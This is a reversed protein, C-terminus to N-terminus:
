YAIVERVSKDQKCSLCKQTDAGRSNAVRCSDLLFTRTLPVESMNFEQDKLSTPWEIINPTKLLSEKIRNQLM